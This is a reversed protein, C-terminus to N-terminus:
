LARMVLVRDETYEHMTDRVGERGIGSAKVGGYPYNDSRFSPTDNIIVGGVELERFARRARSLDSTFVSAQLGYASDNVERLAEEFSAVPSVVVVPGFIEERCVKADRPVDVLVTPSVVRGRREGGVLRRAGAALAEDVWAVVRDASADDILPGVFTDEQSPDGAVTARARAVLKDVFEGYVSKEVYIRQAKICIQGGHVFAGVACKEAAWDLNADSCVVVAANGGLELIVKGRAKSRLQWGVRASGTFSLVRVRPDIALQEAVANDCPLVQLAAPDVGAAQAIEALVLLVSPAQPPPKIIIPTGVAIAPAIKHAGLNLPFNFPVIGVIVGAPFRRTECEYGTSADDLDIPVTRGGFGPLECAALTFTEVARKSEMRATRLPKGGEDRLCAVLDSERQRLGEAIAFLLKRRQGTSQAALKGRSAFAFALAAEAQQPTAQAVRSIGRGDFPSHVEATRESPTWEGKLWLKREIVIAAEHYHKVHRPPRYRHV